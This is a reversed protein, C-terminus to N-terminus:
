SSVIMAADFAVSTSIVLMVAPLMLTAVIAYKVSDLAAEAVERALVNDVFALLM